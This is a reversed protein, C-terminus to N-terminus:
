RFFWVEFTQRWLVHYRNFLRLKEKM